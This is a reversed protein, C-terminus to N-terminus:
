IFKRNTYKKFFNVEFLDVKESHRLFFNLKQM